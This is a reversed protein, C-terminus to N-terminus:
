LSTAAKGDHRIQPATGANRALASSRSIPCLRMSSPLTIRRSPGDRPTCRNKSSWDKPVLCGLFQIRQPPRCQMAHHAPYYLCNLNRKFSVIHYLLRGGDSPEVLLTKKSVINYLVPYSRVCINGSTHQPLGAPICIEKWHVM